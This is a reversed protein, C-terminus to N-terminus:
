GRLPKTHTSLFDYEFPRHPLFEKWVKEISAIGNQIDSGSLKVSIRSHFPAAQFVIPVIPEHLSEFHFDKVVGIVRGKIGAYQFDKDVIDENSMGMMKVAAENLIFSLSDDTIIDKSFNRGSALAIQYTDFFEHDININKLVVNTDSLSDGKQIRASGQSDLL